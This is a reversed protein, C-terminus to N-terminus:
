KQRLPESVLSSDLSLFAKECVGKQVRDREVVGRSQVGVRRRENLVDDAHRQQSATFWSVTQDFGEDQGLTQV